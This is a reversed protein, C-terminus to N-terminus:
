ILNFFFAGAPVRAFTGLLLVLHLSLKKGSIRESLRTRRKAPGRARLLTLAGVRRDGTDVSQLGDDNEARDSVDSRAWVHQRRHFPRLGADRFADAAGITRRPRVARCLRRTRGRAFGRACPRRYASGRASIPAPFVPMLVRLRAPSANGMTKKLAHFNGSNPFQYTAECKLLDVLFRVVRIPAIFRWGFRDSVYGDCGSQLM